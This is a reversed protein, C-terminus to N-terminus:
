IVVSNVVDVLNELLSVVTVPGVGGPVPTFFSARLAASPDVDGKPSGVDIVIAGKKVMYGQILNPVGTASILVDAKSTQYKLNSTKSNCGIVENGLKKLEKVLPLGVMGTAGVVCYNLGARRIPPNLLKKAEDIISLIAKVTAPLFPSNERLGDVDKEYAISNLVRDRDRDRFKEPLPLQVMIGYVSSDSSFQKVASSIQDVLASEEFKVVEFVIGVREAAKKKLSIYLKSGPDNGVLISVLKPKVGKGLLRTVKYSLLKEKKKAFKRGDFIIGM